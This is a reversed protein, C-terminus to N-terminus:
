SDCKPKSAESANGLGLDGVESFVKNFLKPEPAVYGVRMPVSFPGYRVAASDSKVTARGCGAFTGGARRRRLGVPVEADQFAIGPTPILQIITNDGNRAAPREDMSRGHLWTAM